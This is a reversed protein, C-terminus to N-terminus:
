RNGNLFSSLLAVNVYMAVYTPHYTAALEDYCFMERNGSGYYRFLGYVPLSIAVILSSLYCLRTTKNLDISRFSISVIILPFVLYSLKTKLTRLPM